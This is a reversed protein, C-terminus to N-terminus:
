QTMKLYGNLPVVQGGEDPDGDPDDGDYTLGLEDSSWPRSEDPVMSTGNHQGQERLRGFQADISGDVRADMLGALEPTMGALLMVNRSRPVYANATTASPEAWDPVNMFCVQLEQPNGGSDRYVYQTERGEARGQPLAIGRELVAQRLEKGCLAGAPIGDPPTGDGHVRGTPNGIDDGPVAGVQIVYRDYALTWGQVFDTAIREAVASRHVDRGISVAGLILAIIVLVVSMEVITFGAAGPGPVRWAAPAATATPGPRRIHPDRAM